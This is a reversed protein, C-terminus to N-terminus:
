AVGPRSEPAAAPTGPISLLERLEAESPHKHVNGGVRAATWNLPYQYYPTYQPNTRVVYKLTLDGEFFDGERLEVRIGGTFVGGRREFSVKAGVVDDRTEATRPGLVERVKSLNKTIFSLKAQEYSFKANRDAEDYNVVVKDPHARQDKWTPEWAIRLFEQLPKTSVSHKMIQQRRYERRNWSRAPEKENEALLRLYARHNSAAFSRFEEILQQLLQPGVRAFAEDLANQVLALGKPLVDEAKKKNSM